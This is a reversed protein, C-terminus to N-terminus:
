PTKMVVADEAPDNEARFGLRMDAEELTIYNSGGINYARCYLPEGDILVEQASPQCSASNDTGTEMETGIPEYPQGTTVTVTNATEDYEISFQSGTGSLMAALDRLRIYSRGGINYLDPTVAEGNLKVSQPAAFCKVPSDAQKFVSVFNDWGIARIEPVYYEPLEEIGEVKERRDFLDGFLRFLEEDQTYRVNEYDYEDTEDDYHYIREVVQEQKLVGDALYYYYGPFYGMNGSQYFLGGFASLPAYQFRGNRFGAEGLLTIEGDRFAYIYYGCSAMSGERYGILEPTGDRDMDYLAFRAFRDYDDGSGLTYYEQESTKYGGELIFARYAENWRDSSAFAGTSLLGCLMVCIMITTIIRKM